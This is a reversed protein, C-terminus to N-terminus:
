GCHNENRVECDRKFCITVETGFSLKSKITIEADFLLKFREKANSIGHAGEKQETVDFGVGNDSIKVFILDEKSFSSIMIYGDKKRNVNSYKVANEIFPQLSFAPVDFDIIDIDYIVRFAKHRMTNIFDIYNEINQLETKFPIKESDILSLSKRMYESFLDLATDGAAIDSHYKAKISTLANFIFHPKIQEQLIKMKLRENQRKYDEARCAKRDTRIFVALYIALFCFICVWFHAISLWNLVPVYGALHLKVAIQLGACTFLIASTFLFTVNDSRSLYCRVQIIIYYTLVAFLFFFSVLIKSRSQLLLCYLLCCIPALILVPYLPLKKGYKCYDYRLYVLTSIGFCMFSVESGIEQVLPYQTLGVVEYFSSMDYSFLMYLCLFLAIFVTHFTSDSIQLMAVFEILIFISLLLATLFSFIGVGVSLHKSPFGSLFYMIASGACLLLANLVVSAIRLTRKEKRNKM